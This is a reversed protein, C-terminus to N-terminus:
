QISPLWVWVNASVVTMALHCCTGVKAKINSVLPKKKDKRDEGLVITSDEGMGFKYKSDTHEEGKHMNDLKHNTAIPRVMKVYGGEVLKCFM